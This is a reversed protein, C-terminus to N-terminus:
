TNDVHCSPTIVISTVTSEVNSAKAQTKTRSELDAEVHDEKSAVKSNTTSVMTGGLGLVAEAM